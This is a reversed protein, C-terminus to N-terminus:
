FPFEDPESDEDPKLGNGGAWGVGGVDDLLQGLGDNEVAALIVVVSPLEDVLYPCEILWEYEWVDGVGPFIQIHEGLTFQYPVPGLEFLWCEIGFEDPRRGGARISEVVEDWKDYPTRPCALFFAFASQEFSLTVSMTVRKQM